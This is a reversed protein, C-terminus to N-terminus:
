TLFCCGKAMQENEKGSTPSCFIWYCSVSDYSPKGAATCSTSPGSATAIVLFEQKHFCSLDILAAWMVSKSEFLRLSNLRCAKRLSWMFWAMNLPFSHPASPERAHGSAQFVAGNRCSKALFPVKPFVCVRAKFISQTKVSVAALIVHQRIQMKTFSVFYPVGYTNDEKIVAKLSAKKIRRGTLARWLNGIWM